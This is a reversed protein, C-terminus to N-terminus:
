GGRKKKNSEVRDIMAVWNADGFVKKGIQCVSAAVVELTDVLQNYNRILDDLDRTLEAVVFILGDKSPIKGKEYPM